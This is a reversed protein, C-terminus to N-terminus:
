QVLTDKEVYVTQLVGSYIYQQSNIHCTYAGTCAKVDRASPTLM